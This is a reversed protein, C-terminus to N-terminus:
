NVPNISVSMQDGIQEVQIVQGPSLEAQIQNQSGQQLFVFESNSPQVLVLANENGLQSGTLVSDAGTQQVAIQNGAGMQTLDGQSHVSSQILRLENDSGDQLVLLRSDSGSQWLQVTNKVGGGQQVGAVSTEGEQVVGIESSLTSQTAIKQDTIDPRGFDSLMSLDAALAFSLPAAMIAGFAAGYLWARHVGFCLNVPM